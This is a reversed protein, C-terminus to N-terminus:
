RRAPGESIQADSYGPHDHKGAFTRKCRPNPDLPKLGDFQRLWWACLFVVATTRLQKNAVAGFFDNLGHLNSAVKPNDGIYGFISHAM